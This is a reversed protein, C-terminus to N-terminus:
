TIELYILKSRELIILALYGSTNFTLHLSQAALYWAMFAYPHTFYTTDDLNKVEAGFPLTSLKL